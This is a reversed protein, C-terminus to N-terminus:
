KKNSRNNKNTHNAIYDLSHEAKTLTGYESSFFTYETSM